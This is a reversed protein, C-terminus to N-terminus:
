VITIKEAGNINGSIAKGKSYLAKGAGFRGFAIRKQLSSSKKFMVSVRMWCVGSVRLSNKQMTEEKRPKGM